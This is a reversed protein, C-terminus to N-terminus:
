AIAREWEKMERATPVPEGDRRLKQRYWSICAMSTKAKPFVRLVAHLAQANNAGSRIANEAVSGITFKQSTENGM